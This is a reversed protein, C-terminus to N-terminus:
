RAFLFVSAKPALSLSQGYVFSFERVLKVMAIPTRNCSDSCAVKRFSGMTCRQGKGGLGRQRRDGIRSQRGGVHIANDSAILVDDEVIIKRSREAQRIKQVPTGRPCSPTGQLSKIACPIEEFPARLAGSITVESEQRALM